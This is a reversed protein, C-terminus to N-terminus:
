FLVSAADADAFSEGGAEFAKLWHTPERRTLIEFSHGIKRSLRDSAEVSRFGAKANRFLLQAGDASAGPAAFDELPFRLAAAIRRLEGLTPEEGAALRELRELEVGAKRALKSIDASAILAALKSM